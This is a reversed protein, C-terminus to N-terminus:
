PKGAISYIRENTVLRLLYDLMTGIILALPLLFLLETAILKASVAWWAACLLSGNGAFLLAAAALFLVLWYKRAM